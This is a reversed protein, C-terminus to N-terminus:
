AKPLDHDVSLDAATKTFWQIVEPHYPIGRERRDLEAEHEPIGPYMVRSEGPAPKCELLARLYDDMDKKFVDVDAFKSIDIAMFFHSVGKRRFPGGGTGSLVGCLIEVMMSLGFGKHSGIERTGGLPLMMFQAPVQTEDMVPAGESDTIWGPLVQGGVRRLLEIKNGAVSSMSADFIFPPLENSPVGIGLPNLGLLREAGFTPAVLLGGATMSIGIMDYEIGQHAYYASPGYHRGNFAVAIAVGTDRARTCAADMMERSQALGLGRDCDFSMAGGHDETQTLSPQPNIQNARFGAVYARMMNSVGHSDIGRIDAYILVDAAAKAASASMDLAEFIGEVTNRMVSQDVRVEVDEPVKFRDLM